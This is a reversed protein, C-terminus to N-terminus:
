PKELLGRDWSDVTVDTECSSMRSHMWDESGTQMPSPTQDLFMGGAFDCSCDLPDDPGHFFLGTPASKDIELSPPSSIAPLKWTDSLNLNSLAKPKYPGKMGEEDSFM